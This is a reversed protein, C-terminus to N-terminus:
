SGANETRFSQIVEAITEFIANKGLLDVLGSRQLEFYVDDQLDAMILCVGKEQLMKHIERLAEAASFDIDDVAM